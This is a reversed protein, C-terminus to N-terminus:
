PAKATVECCANRVFKRIRLKPNFVEIGAQRLKRFVADEVGPKTCVAYWNMNM